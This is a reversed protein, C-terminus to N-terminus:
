FELGLIGGSDPCWVPIGGSEPLGSRSNWQVEANGLFVVPIGTFEPQFGARVRFEPGIKVLTTQEVLHDILSDNFFQNFYQLPSHEEIPPPPFPEGKYAVDYQVSQGKCWQMSQLRQFNM